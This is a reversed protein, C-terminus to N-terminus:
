PNADLAERYRALALQRREEHDVIPRAYGAAALPSEWPRHASKGPLGALEPVWRRVYDGDPDFREGQRTPNFIRFYPAADTGTSAAWQWGGNNSAPDGDVLSAMFHREGERWDILLDKALFSAVIMRVRNHMWGISALQRMGADVIPYGTRGERWAELGDPDENWRIERYAPKLAMRSAIPNEALIGAYFDRWILEGIWKDAGARRRPDDAVADIARRVCQAPSLLGFRLAASLRSTGDIAPRDRDEAYRAVRHELFADLRRMAADEDPAPAELGDIGERDDGRPLGRASVDALGRLRPARLVDPGAAGLRERWSRAYPTFVAYAGGTGTRVERSEFVVRGKRVVVTRDAAELARQVADDRASAYPSYDANWSVRDIRHRRAIEPVRVVPDGVVVILPVGRKALADALARLGALLYRTRPATPGSAELLRDDLVFLGAM